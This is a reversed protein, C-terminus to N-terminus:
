RRRSVREIEERVLREVLPPLNEDLWEKLMPRMMEEALQEITRTNNSLITSALHNFASAVAADARPSLLAGGGQTLPRKPAEAAAPPTERPPKPKPADELEGYRSGIAPWPKIKAAEDEVTSAPPKRDPASAKVPAPEIREEGFLPSVNSTPRLQLPPPTASTAPKPPPLKAEDESIIRRISALIEEMSSETVQNPKAMRM